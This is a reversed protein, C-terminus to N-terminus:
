FNLRVLLNTDREKVGDALHFVSYELAIKTNLWPLYALNFTPGKKDLSEDQASKVADHGVTVGYKRNYFYSLEAYYGTFKVDSFGSAGDWAGTDKASMYVAVAEVLHPTSDTQWQFDAGSRRIKDQYIPGLVASHDYNQKGEYSFGGVSATTEGTLAYEFVLRGFYDPPDSGVDAANSDGKFMGAAAYIMNSFFKGNVLVGRNQINDTDAFQFLDGGGRTPTFIAPKSVTQYASFRITNYPDAGGVDSKLLVLGVINDGIKTAGALKVRDLSFQGTDSYWQPVIFAGIEPALRGAFYFYVQDPIVMEASQGGVKSYPLSIISVALPPSSFRLLDLNDKQIRPYDDAVTTYGAVKFDRGAATLRPWIGHCGSCPRGTQRAFAPVASAEEVVFVACFLSGLMIYYLALLMGNKM